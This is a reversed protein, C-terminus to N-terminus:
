GQPSELAERGNRGPPPRRRRRCDERGATRYGQGRRQPRFQSGEPSNRARFLRNERGPGPPQEVAALDSYDYAPCGLPRAYLVRDAGVPQAVRVGGVGQVVSRRDMQNLGREPM